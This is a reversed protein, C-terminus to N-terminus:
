RIKSSVFALLFGVLSSAIVSLFNVTGDATMIFPIQLIFWLVAWVAVPYTLFLPNNVWPDDDTDFGLYDGPVKWLLFGAVCSLSVNAGMTYIDDDWITLYDTLLGTFHGLLLLGIIRLSGLMNEARKVFLLSFVANGLAQLIGDHAFFSLFIGIGNYKFPRDPHFAMRYLFPDNEEFDFYAFFLFALSCVVYVGFYDATQYVFRPLGSLGFASNSDPIKISGQHGFPPLILDESSRSDMVHEPSREPIEPKREKAIEIGTERPIRELESEDFWIFHCQKCFDLEMTRSSEDTYRLTLMPKHCVSCPLKGLKSGGTLIANKIKEIASRKSRRRLVSLNGLIGGCSTCKLYLGSSERYETLENRCRPCNM